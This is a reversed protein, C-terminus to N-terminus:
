VSQFLMVLTSWVLGNLSFADAGDFGAAGADSSPLASYHLVLTDRIVLIAHWNSAQIRRQHALQTQLLAYLLGAM